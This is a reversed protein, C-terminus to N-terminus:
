TSQEPQNWKIHNPCVNMTPQETSECCERDYECTPQQEPLQSHRRGDIGPSFTAQQSQDKQTTTQTHQHIRVSRIKYLSPADDHILRQQFLDYDFMTREIKRLRIGPWDHSKRHDIQNCEAAHLPALHM